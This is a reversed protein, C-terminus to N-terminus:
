QLVSFALAMLLFAAGGILLVVAGVKVIRLQGATESITAENRRNARMMRRDQEVFWHGCKPCREAIIYIEAGCEPCDTVDEDDDGEFGAAIKVM